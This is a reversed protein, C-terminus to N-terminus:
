VAYNVPPTSCNCSLDLLIKNSTQAGSQVGDIPSYRGRNCVLVGGIAHPCDSNEVSLM